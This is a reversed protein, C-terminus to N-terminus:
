SITCDRLYIDFDEAEEDDDDNEDDAARCGQTPRPRM